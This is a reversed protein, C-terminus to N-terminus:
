VEGSHSKSFYARIITLTIAIIVTALGLVLGFIDATTRALLVYLVLGIAALRLLYRVVFPTKSLKSDAEWQGFAKQLGWCLGYFNLISILGGVLLGLTFDRAAFFSSALLMIGM